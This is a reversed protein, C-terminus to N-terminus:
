IVFKFSVIISEIMNSMQSSLLSIAMNSGTIAMISISRLSKSPMLLNIQINSTTKIGKTPEIM